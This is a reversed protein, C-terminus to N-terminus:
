GCGDLILRLGGGVGQVDKALVQYVEGHHGGRYPFTEPNEEFIKVTFDVYHRIARIKPLACLM